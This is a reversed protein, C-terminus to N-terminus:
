SKSTVSTLIRTNNWTSNQASLKKCTRDRKKFKKVLKKIIRKRKKHTAPLINDSEIEPTADLPMYNQHTCSQREYHTGPFSLDSVEDPININNRTEGNVNLVHLTKDKESVKGLPATIGIQEGRELNLTVCTADRESSANISSIALEIKPAVISDIATLIANQIRDEVTDVVYSMERDIRENFCRELTKVKVTNEITM